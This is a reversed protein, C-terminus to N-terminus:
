LVSLLTNDKRQIQLSLTELLKVLFQTLTISHCSPLSAKTKIIPYDQVHM